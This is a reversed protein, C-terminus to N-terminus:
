TDQYGSYVCRVSDQCLHVRRYLTDRAQNLELVFQPTFNDVIAMRLEEGNLNSFVPQHDYQAHLLRCCLLLALTIRM